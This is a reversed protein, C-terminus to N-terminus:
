FPPERMRPMVLRCNPNAPIALMAAADDILRGAPAAVDGLM